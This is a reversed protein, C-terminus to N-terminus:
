SKVAVIIEAGLPEIAAEFFHTLVGDENILYKCFNWTPSENLWGNEEENSLWEFLKNQAENKIVVSKKALPFTVGYNIKCFEAIEEDDGKEQEKFNNSPFGILELDDINEEYLRELGEYQNTYGCHSATNVILIKKNKYEALTEVKGNNLEIPIEYVSTKPQINNTNELIKTNM